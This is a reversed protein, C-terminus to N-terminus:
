REDRMDKIPNRKLNSFLPIIASILGAAIIAGVLRGMQMFDVGYLSFSRTLDQSNYITLADVTIGAQYKSSILLALLLGVGVAFIAVILGLMLTYLIYVLGIDMRKAGIARFVATERRSDAVVKGVTGMMILASIVAIVMSAKNFFGNFWNKAQTIAMSNSGFSGIFFPQGKKPCSETPNIDTFGLSCNKEDVFKRASAVDNFEVLVQTNFSSHKGVTDFSDKFEPLKESSSLPIAWGTGLGSTIIGSILSSVNFGGEFNNMDPVVGVIKFEVLRQSPAAQGFKREFSQLKADYTKTEATRKDSVVVVDACPKDSPEYILEPKIFDKKDKNQELLKQQAVADNYRQLSTSNRLCVQFTKGAVASRVEKLRVLKQESSATSTLATLGLAEEAASFPAIVPVADGATELSQGPLLFGKVVEDDYATMNSTISEFGRAMYGATNGLGVEKDDKVAFMNVGGSPQPPGGSTGLTVSYYTAKANYEAAYKKLSEFYDKSDNTKKDFLLKSIQPTPNVMKGGEPGGTVVSLNETASDYEIGLKKAEAKKQEILAKDIKEASDILSPDSYSSFENFGGVSSVNLIYRSGFGDKSFEEVSQTVGTFLFSALALLIFFLGSVFTTVILRVRRTKLKTLSLTLADTLRIM